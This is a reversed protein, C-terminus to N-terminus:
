YGSQEPKGGITHCYCRGRGQQVLDYAKSLEEDSIDDHGRQAMALGAFIKQIGPDDARVNTTIQTNDDARLTVDEKSGKYYADNPTGETNVTPFNDPDM